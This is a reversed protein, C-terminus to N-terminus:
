PPTTRRKTLPEPKRYRQDAVNFDWRLTPHAPLGLSWCLRGLASEHLQLVGFCAGFEMALCLSPSIKFENASSGQERKRNRPTMTKSKRAVWVCNDSGSYRAGPLESFAADPAMFSLTPHTGPLM